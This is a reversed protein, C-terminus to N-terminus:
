REAMQGPYIHYVHWVSRRANGGSCTPCLAVKQHYGRRAFFKQEAAEADQLSDFRTASSVQSARYPAAGNEGDIFSAPRCAVWCLKLAAPKRVRKKKETIRPAGADLQAQRREAYTPRPTVADVNVPAPTPAPNKTDPTVATEEPHSKLWNRLLNEVLVCLRKRKLRIFAVRYIGEDISISKTPKKRRECPESGYEEVALARLNHVALNEGAHRVLFADRFDVPFPLMQKLHQFSYTYRKEPLFSVAVTSAALLTTRKYGTAEVTVDLGAERGWANIAFLACDAVHMSSAADERLSEKVIHIFQARTCGTPIHM